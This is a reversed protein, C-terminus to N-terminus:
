LAMRMLTDGDTVQVGRRDGHHLYVLRRNPRYEEAAPSTREWNKALYNFTKPFHNVFQRSSITEVLFDWCELLSLEEFGDAIEWESRYLWTRQYDRECM